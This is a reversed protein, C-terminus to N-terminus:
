GQLIRLGYDRFLRLPRLLYYLFSMRTPLHFLDWDRALPHPIRACSFWVIRARDTFRERSKLYFAHRQFERTRHVPEPDFIGARVRAALECADRDGAALEALPVPLPLACIDNALLLGLCLGRLAGTHSATEILADWRIQPNNEVLRALSCIWELREWRHKAGHMCLYLCLDEVSLARVAHSQLRGQGLRNWVDAAALPFVQDKSGFSWHLEVVVDGEARRLQFAHEARIYEAERAPSLSFEPTYGRRTLVQRAHIVADPKVLIDIDCFQRMGVSGFLQEALAPGKFPVAEIGEAEFLALIRLLEGTLALNRGANALCARTLERSVKAPLVGPCFEEVRAKLLPLLGHLESTALVYSWNLDRRALRTFQARAADDRVAAACCLLFEQECINSKASNTM